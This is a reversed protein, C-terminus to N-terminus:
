HAKALAKEILAEIEGARNYVMFHGGGTILHDVKRLKHIPLTRDKDGHIHVISTTSPVLAKEWRSLRKLSWQLSANSQTEVMSQILEQEEGKSYDHFSGWYPLTRVTFEKTFFRDLRLPSVIKLQLPLEKGSQISSILIIKQISKQAAIEQCMVGGFSHGVLISEEDEPIDKALRKAYSPVSEGQTPEIWDLYTKSLDPLRLNRFIRHDFGLGPIFYAKRM